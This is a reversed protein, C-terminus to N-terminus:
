NEKAPCTEPCQTHDGSNHKRGVAACLEAWRQQALMKPGPYGVLVVNDYRTTFVPEYNRGDGAVAHTTESVVDVNIAPNGTPPNVGSTRIEVYGIGNPLTIKASDGPELTLKQEPM